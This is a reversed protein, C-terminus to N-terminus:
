SRFKSKRIYIGLFALSLGLLAGGLVDTTWHEGLYVRSVFMLIDFSLVLIAFIIKLEKRLSSKWIAFLLVLSIFAVRASHGSPYAFYEGAVEGSPFGIHINTRLLESPPPAQYVISKLALEIIGTLVFLVLVYIKRLIPILFIILLLILLSVEASGLISFVSFPTDFVRPIINQLNTTLVIDFERYVGASVFITFVIFLFLTLVSINLFNKGM